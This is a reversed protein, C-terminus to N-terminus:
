GPHRRRHEESCYAPGDDNLAVIAESRPVYVGCDACRLMAESGGRARRPKDSANPNANPNATRQAKKIYLVWMVVVFVVLVWLLLKM